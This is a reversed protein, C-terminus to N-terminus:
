RMSHFLDGGNSNLHRATSLDLPSIIGPNIDVQAVGGPIPAIAYTEGNIAILALSGSSTPPLPTRTSTPTPTQVPTPAPTQTPTTTPAPNSSNAGGGGGNSCGVYLLAAAVLPVRWYCSRRGMFVQSAAALFPGVVKPSRQQPGKAGSIRM